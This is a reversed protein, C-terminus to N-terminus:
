YPTGSLQFVLRPILCCNGQLRYKEKEEIEESPTKSSFYGLFKM